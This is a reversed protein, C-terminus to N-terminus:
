TSARAVAGDRHSSTNGAGNGGSGDDDAGTSAAPGSLIRSYQLVAASVDGAAEAARGAAFGVSPDGSQASAHAYATAAQRYDAHMECYAGWQAWTVKTDAAGATAVERQRSAGQTASKAVGIRKDRDADAIKRKARLLIRLVAGRNQNRERRADATGRPTEREAGLQAATVPSRGYPGRM